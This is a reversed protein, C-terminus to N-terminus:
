ALGKLLEALWAAQPPHSWELMIGGHLVLKMQGAPSHNAQVRVPIISAPQVSLAVQKRTGKSQPVKNQRVKNVWQSLRKRSLGQQKAYKVQSLGSAQWDKVRKVWIARYADKPMGRTPNQYEPKM